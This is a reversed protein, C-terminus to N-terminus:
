QAFQVSRYSLLIDDLATKTTACATLSLRTQDSRKVLVTLAAFYADRDTCHANTAPGYVVFASRGFVVLSEVTNAPATREERFQASYRGYDFYVNFAEHRFRGVVSEAGDLPEYRTGVPLAISFVDNANIRDFRAGLEDFADGLGDAAFAAVWGLIISAFITGM